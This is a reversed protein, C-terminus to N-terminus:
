SQNKQERIFMALAIVGVVLLGVGVAMAVKATTDSSSWLVLGLVLLGAGAILCVLMVIMWLSFGKQCAQPNGFQFGQQGTTQFEQPGATQYGQQGTNPFEQSVATQYGQQGMNSFEQPGATQYGQQGMNSYDQSAVTQYGQKGASQIGQSEENRFQQPNSYQQGYTSGYEQEAFEPKRSKLSTYSGRQRDRHERIYQYGNDGAPTMDTKQWKLSVDKKEKNEGRGIREFLRGKGGPNNYARILDERLEWASQYRENPDKETCKRIIRDLECGKLAPNWEELPTVGFPKHYPSHNTVLNFMTAGLCFIDTRNDTQGLGGFQEPAAFGETGFLITDSTQDSNKYTRATGFDILKIGGDPQLIVNSPKIDRYIIPPNQTHLYYLVACVQISLRIVKDVSMAGFQEIVKDLSLGEVYDMVIMFDEDTEIVDYIKPLLPHSLQKLLKGETGLSLESTRSDGYRMREAVKIALDTGTMRDIGRYVTSMGGKGIVGTVEYRGRIVVGTNLM